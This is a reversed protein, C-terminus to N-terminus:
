YLLYCSISKLSVAIANIHISLPGHHHDDGNAGLSFASDSSSSSAGEKEGREGMQLKKSRCHTSTSSSSPRSPRLSSSTYKLWQAGYDGFLAIMGGSICKTRLLHAGLWSLYWMCSFSALCRLTTTLMAGVGGCGRAVVAM